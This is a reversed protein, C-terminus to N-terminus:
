LALVYDPRYMTSLNQLSIMSSAGKSFFWQFTLDYLYTTNIGKSFHLIHFVRLDLTFWGICLNMRSTTLLTSQLQQLTSINKGEKDLCSISKM